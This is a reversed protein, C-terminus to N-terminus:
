LLKCRLMFFTDGFSSSPCFSIIRTYQVYTQVVGTLKTEGFKADPSSASGNGRSPAPTRPLNGSKIKQLVSIASSVFKTYMAERADEWDRESLGGELGDATDSSRTAAGTKGSKTEGDEDAPGLDSKPVEIVSECVALSDELSIGHIDDDEDENDSQNIM